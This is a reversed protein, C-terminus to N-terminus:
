RKSIIPATLDALRIKQIGLEDFNSPDLWQKFAEELAPWDSDIVAHWATDRSRQKYITAQRFIGEFSFGLRAAAARSKENLSDCKWEYRRYGQQFARQMMLYMAETAAPKRQLLPSYSLHGVEICGVSSDIRLYSAAGVPKDSSKDIIAFFLPDSGTCTRKMWAEYENLSEFPGYPMYTWMKGLVDLSNAAYLDAAHLDADLLEVRCFRGEMPLKSPLLPSIWEPMSFGIPQGLSNINTETM